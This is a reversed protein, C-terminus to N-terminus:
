HARRSATLPFEIARHPLAGILFLYLLLPWSSFNRAHTFGEHHRDLKVPKM